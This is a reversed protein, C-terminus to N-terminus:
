KKIRVKSKTFSACAKYTRYRLHMQPMLKDEVFLFNNVTENM